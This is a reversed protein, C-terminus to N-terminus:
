SRVASRTSSAGPSRRRRSSAPAMATSFSSSTAAGALSWIAHASSAARSAARDRGVTQRRDHPGPQRQGAQFQRSGSVDRHTRGDHPRGPRLALGLEEEFCRRNPLDTVTDFRAMRNIENQANRRETVDQIVIVSGESKMRHVTVEFARGDRTELPVTLDAGDGRRPLAGAGPPETAGFRHRRKARHRRSISYVNAGVLDHQRRSGFIRLAQDNTSILRGRADVMCLGHSMNNLATDLRAALTAARQQAAVVAMFNARLRKSYGKMYLVLPLIGVVIASPYWGAAVIMAATLPGFAVVLQLNVGRYTAYSRSMLNFAYAITM